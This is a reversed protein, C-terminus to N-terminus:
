AGGSFLLAGWEGMRRSGLKSMGVQHFSGAVEEMEERLIGSLLLLGGPSVHGSLELAMKRLTPGTLNAVVLPFLREGVRELSGEILEIRGELGNARMNGLAAEVAVPDQDVAVVRRVGLLALAMALIGTGTGLDLATDPIAKALLEDLWGLCLRTTEHLGTGFAQGPEIQIVKLGGSGELPMWPPCVALRRSVKSPKFHVKWARAWGPDALGEVDLGSIPDEGHIEVLARRYNELRQCTEQAAPESDCYALLLVNGGKGEQVEVGGCGQDQLFSIVADQAWPRSLVSLRWWKAPEM